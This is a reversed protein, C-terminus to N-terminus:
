FREQSSNQVHHGEEESFLHRTIYDNRFMGSPDVREVIRIFDDFNPYLARLGSPSFQHTKAWHPRGGHQRVIHEFGRSLESFEIPYTYPRFPSITRM